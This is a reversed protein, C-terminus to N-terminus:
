YVVIGIRYIIEKTGCVEAAFRAPLFLKIYYVTNILGSNMSYIDSSRKMLIKCYYYYAREKYKMDKNVTMLSLSKDNCEM